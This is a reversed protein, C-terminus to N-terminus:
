DKQVPNRKSECERLRCGSRMKPILHVHMEKWALSQAQRGSGFCASHAKETARLLCVIGAFNKQCPQTVISATFVPSLPRRLLGSGQHLIFHARFVSTHPLRIPSCKEGIICLVQFSHLKAYLFACAAVYRKRFFDEEM